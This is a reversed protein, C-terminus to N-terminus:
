VKPKSLEVISGGGDIVRKGEISGCLQERMGLHMANAIDMTGATHYLKPLIFELNKNLSGIFNPTNVNGPYIAAPRYICVSKFLNKNGIHVIGDEMTGKVHNYYGGGAGTKTFISYSNEINAGLSSLASFHEIGSKSCAKAFSVPINCDISMLEEMTSASPKGIGLLM